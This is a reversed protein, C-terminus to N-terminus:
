APDAGRAAEVFAEVLGPDKRFGGSALPRNTHTLSDVGWPRVRKIADSVNELSLGGALIVRTDVQTVIDASIGWDHTAGTAGIGPIGPGVSDLLLYDVLPVFARAVDIAEPGTVAVAQMIETDGIEKRLVAVDEPGLTGPPACLHVIDPRVSEIMEIIQSLDTAVSLAVSRASGVLADRIARAVGIGVEGPLGLRTPTIGVHEVGLEALRVAEDATQATYIQVRVSM